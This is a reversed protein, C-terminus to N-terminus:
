RASVILVCAPQGSDNTWLRRVGAPIVVADEARLTHEQDDLTLVIEGQTVFAFEEKAQARARKGSRGNRELLILMAALRQGAVSVAELRARSWTSTTHAREERRVILNRREAPRDFLDRLGVGLAEGIRELSGLSPSVMGNELQSIFSPSFSTHEALERVSLGLSTRLHRVQAGLDVAGSTVRRLEAARPM